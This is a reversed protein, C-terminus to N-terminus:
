EFLHDVTGIEPLDIPASFLYASTVPFEDLNRLANIESLQAPSLSDYVQAFASAYSSSISGDLAGYDESLSMIYAENVDEGIMFKRLEESVTRRIEVIEMLEDKQSDILDTIIARQDNDLIQLLAEGSDGTVSTSIFHDPNGMAAIDKMYFAGFYTGHREPCFYVDSDLDGAYWSFLESAYTMVLVHQEHSMTTKDVQDSLDQWDLSSGAAMADLYAEQENTLNFIIDGLVKAREYSLEGDIHYLDATHSEIATQSLGSTGEPLDGDLNQRFAKMLPFREYGFDVLLPSQEEALDILQDIQEDSLIYLVNNAVRPVFTTNHGLGGEDVDRLYQFGFYDSLKGPPFFTDAELQGTFFALADFAITKLQANDSIAQDISYSQQGGKNNQDSVQPQDQNQTPEKLAEEKPEKAKQEADKPPEQKRESSNEHNTQHEPPPALDRIVHPDWGAQRIAAELDEGGKLGANRFSENIAVAEEATLTDPSYDALIGAVTENTNPADSSATITSTGYSCGMFTVTLITIILSLTIKKFKM